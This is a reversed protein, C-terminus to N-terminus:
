IVYLCKLNKCTAMDTDNEHGTDMHTNTSGVTIMIM